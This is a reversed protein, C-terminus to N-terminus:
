FKWKIGGLFTQNNYNNNIKNFNLIYEHTLNIYQYRIFFDIKNLILTTEILFKDRILDDGNFFIFGNQEIYNVSNIIKYNAQLNLKKFLIASSGLTYVPKTFNESQSPNNLYEIGGLLAFTNNNLPYYNIKLGPYYMLEEVNTLTVDFKLKFNRFNYQMFNYNVPVTYRTTNQPAFRMRSYTQLTKKGFILNTYSAIEIKPSLQVIVGGYINTESVDYNETINGDIFDQHLHTTLNSYRAFTLTYFLRNAKFRTLGLDFYKENSTINNDYIDQEFVIPKYNTNIAYQYDFFLGNPKINKTLRKKIKKDQESIFLQADFFKGSSLYSYYLYEIAITDTNFELAKKFHPIAKIFQKREYYAIGARMRLYYYDINQNFAQKSIKILNKWDKQLYYKYTISDVYLFNLKKQSIAKTSLFILLGLILIKYNKLNM